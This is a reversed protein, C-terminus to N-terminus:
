LPFNSRIKNILPVLKSLISLRGKKSISFFRSTDGLILAPSLLQPDRVNSSLYIKRILQRRENLLFPCTCLLHSIDEPASNCLRCVPNDGKHLKIRKYEMTLAHGLRLRSIAVEVSRPLDASWFIPTSGKALSPKVSCHHLGKGESLRHTWWESQYHVNIHVLFQLYTISRPPDLPNYGLRIAALNIHLKNMTHLLKQSLRCASFNTTIEELFYSNYHASSLLFRSTLEVLRIHLPASNLEAELSVLSTTRLAGLVVRKAENDVKQIKHLLNKCRIQNM